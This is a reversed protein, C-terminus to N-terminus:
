FSTSLVRIPPRDVARPHPIPDREAHEPLNPFLGGLFALFQLDGPTHGPPM